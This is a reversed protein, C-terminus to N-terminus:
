LTIKTTKRLNYRCSCKVLVSFNVYLYDIDCSHDRTGETDLYVHRHRHSPNVWKGGLHYASSTWIPPADTLLYTCGRGCFSGPYKLLQGPVGSSHLHFPPPLILHLVETSAKALVRCKTLVTTHGVWDLNLDLIIIMWCRRVASDHPSFTRIYYM